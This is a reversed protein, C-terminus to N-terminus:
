LIEKLTQMDDTLIGLSLQIQIVQKTIKDLKNNIEKYEQATKELHNLKTCLEKATIINTCNFSHGQGYVRSGQVKYIPQNVRNKSM